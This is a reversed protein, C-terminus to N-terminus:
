SEYYRLLRYLATYAMARTAAVKPKFLDQQNVDKMYATMLGTQLAWAIATQSEAVTIENGDAITALTTAADESLTCDYGKFEAYRHLFVAVQERTVAEDYDFKSDTTKMTIGAELAWSVAPKDYADVFYNEGMPPRQEIGYMVNVFEGRPMDDDAHLSVTFIDRDVMWQAADRYIESIEDTLMVKPTEFYRPYLDLYRLFDATSRSNVAIDNGESDLYVWHSFARGYGTPDETIPPIAGLAGNMGVAYETYAEPDLQDHLRLTRETFTSWVPLLSFWPASPVTVTDGPNVRHIKVDDGLYEWAICQAGQQYVEATSIQYSSGVSVAETVPAGYANNPLVYRVYTSGSNESKWVAYLTVSENRRYASRQSYTPSGANASESWGLFIYGEREPASNPIYATKDGIKATSTPGGTGGNPDFTIIFAELTTLPVYRVNDTFTLVDGPYVRAGTKENKWGQYELYSKIQPVEPITYSEGYEGYLASVWQAKPVGTNDFSAVYTIEAGTAGSEGASSSEVTASATTEMVNGRANNENNSM